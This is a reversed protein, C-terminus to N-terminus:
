CSNEVSVLESLLVKGEDTLSRGRLTKRILNNKFLYGEQQLYNKEGVGIYSALAKIGAKDVGSLYKLIKLDDTTYGNKLISYNYLATKIDGNLYYTAELYSLANRPTKRCNAAIISFTQSLIERRDSFVKDTYQSIIKIIDSESYEELKIRIKFRQVFPEYKEFMEGYETTCGILTFPQISEGNWMFDTMITYLQEVFNRELAHTEDIIFFGGDLRKVTAVFDEVCPIAKAIVECKYMKKGATRSYEEAFVRALTTKGTGASGYILIHPMTRHSSITGDIYNRLLSKAKDQGIYSNFSTPVFIKQHTSTKKPPFLSKFFNKGIGKLKYMFYCVLLFFIIEM